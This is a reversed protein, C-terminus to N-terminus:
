GNMRCFWLTRYSMLARGARSIPEKMVFFCVLFRHNLHREKSFDAKKVGFIGSSPLRLYSVEAVNEVDVCHLIGQVGRIESCFVSM